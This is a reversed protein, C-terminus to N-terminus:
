AALDVEVLHEEVAGDDGVRLPDARDTVAPLDGVRRERTFALHHRARTRTADVADAAATGIM